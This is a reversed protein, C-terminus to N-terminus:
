VTDNDETAEIVGWKQTPFMKARSVSRAQLANCTWSSRSTPRWQGHYFLLWCLILRTALSALSIIINEFSHGNWSLHWLQRPKPLVSTRRTVTKGVPLWVRGHVQSPILIQTIIKILRVSKHLPPLLTLLIRLRLCMGFELRSLKKHVAKCM